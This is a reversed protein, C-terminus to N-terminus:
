VSKKFSLKNETGKILRSINARHKYISILSVCFAFLFEEFSRSLSIVVLPFIGMGIVSGLSVYKSLIIIVVGILVCILAVVPDFTMFVGISTAIGKGGRFGLLAPWNHGLIVALGCLIITVESLEFLRGVLIVLVGKLVDGVLVMVAYRKGLVRLVNTTGANGSGYERIDKKLMVKTLLFSFSINGILYCMLVIIINKM